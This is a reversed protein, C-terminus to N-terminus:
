FLCSGRNTMRRTDRATFTGQTGNWEVSGVHWLEDCRLNIMRRDHVLQGGIHVKITADTAGRWHDSYYHVYVDYTGPEAVSLNINEPGFGDIDDRDLFPNDETMGAQGWDPNMNDFFCDKESDFFQGGPGVLHLDVDTDRTPWSLELSIATETAPPPIVEGELNITASAPGMLGEYIVQLTGQETSPLSDPRFEVMLEAPTGPIVDLNTVPTIMDFMNSGSMRTDTIQAAGGRAECTVPLVSTQGREVAGFALRNPSCVIDGLPQLGQGSLTVERPDHDNPHLVLTDSQMASQTPTFAVEVTVKGGAPVTLPLALSAAFDAPATEDGTSGWTVRAIEGDANGANSVEFTLTRTEGLAVTEFNLAAPTVTLIPFREETGEGRLELVFQTDGSHVVVQADRAGATTPEFIVEFDEVMGPAFVTGELMRKLGWLRFDEPVEVRDVTFSIPGTNALRVPKSQFTGLPLEGFDLIHPEFGGEISLQSLGSSEECGVAFGLVLGIAVLRSSM